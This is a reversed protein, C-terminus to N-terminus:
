AKSKQKRPKKKSYETLISRVSESEELMHKLVNDINGCRTMSSIISASLTDRLKSITEAKVLALRAEKLNTYVKDGVQYVKAIGNAM